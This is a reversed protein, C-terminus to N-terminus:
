EMPSACEPCTFAQQWTWGATPDTWCCSSLAGSDNCDATAQVVSDNARVTGRENVKRVVTSFSEVCLEEPRLRLKRM